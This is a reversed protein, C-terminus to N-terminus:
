LLGGITHSPRECVNKFAAQRECSTVIKNHIFADNRLSEDLGHQMTRLKQVLIRLCESTTKGNNKQDNVITEFSLKNWNTLLSRKYEIGEFNRKIESCLEELNMNKWDSYFNHFYDLAEDKLMIPFAIKLALAPFDANECNRLFIDFKYDFADGNGSYKNEIDYLKNLTALERSYGHPNYRSIREEDYNNSHIDVERELLKTSYPVNRPQNSGRINYRDDDSRSKAKNRKLNTDLYKVGKEEPTAICKQYSPDFSLMKSVRDFDKDSTPWIPPEELRILALLNGSISKKDKPIYVGRLRLTDRLRRPLEIGARLFDEVTTFQQFDDYFDWWLDEGQHEDLKYTEIRNRIFEKVDEDTDNLLSIGAAWDRKVLAQTPDTSISLKQVLNKLDPNASM